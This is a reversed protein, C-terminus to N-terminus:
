IVFNSHCYGLFKQAFLFLFSVTSVCLKKQMTKCLKKEPVCPLICSKLADTEFITVGKHRIIENSFVNEKM